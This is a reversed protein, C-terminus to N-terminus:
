RMVQKVQVVLAPKQWLTFVKCERMWNESAADLELDFSWIIKALILRMEAYALNKGLCNRPGFSFPQLASRKDDAYEADGLWREPAFKEPDKFNRSSHGTPYSSVYVSTKAPIFHGSITAGSPPTQRPFGTPVPPFYRLSESLVALLYPLRGVAEITISDYTPFASRVEQKLTAHVMPNKLLLYTAGSLLTATTESGATIFLLCNSNIEDQSMALVKGDRGEKTGNHALIHSYFDPRNTETQARKEARAYIWSAYEMRQRLIGTDILGLLAGVYKFWPYHSITFILPFSELM